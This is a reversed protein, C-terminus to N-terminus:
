ARGLGRSRAVIALGSALLVTAFAAVAGIAASVWDFGEAVVIEVAPSWAAPRGESIGLRPDHARADEQRVLREIASPQAPSPTTIGLRPDNRRADEQRVLREIASPQMPADQAFAGPALTGLVIAGALVVHRYM